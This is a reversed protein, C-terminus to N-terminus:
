ARESGVTSGSARAEPASVSLQEADRSEPRPQQGVDSRLLNLSEGLQACYQELRDIRVDQQHLRVRDDEVEFRLADFVDKVESIVALVATQPADQDSDVRAELRAIKESSSADISRMAGVLDDLREDLREVRELLDSASVFREANRLDNLQEASRRRAAGVNAELVPWEPNASRM